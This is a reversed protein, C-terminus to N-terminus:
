RADNAGVARTYLDNLVTTGGKFEVITNTKCAASARKVFEPYEAFDERINKPQIRKIPSSLTKSYFYLTQRGSIRKSYIILAADDVVKYYGYPHLWRVKDGFARYRYGDKYYGGIEGFKHRSEKGQRMVIVDDLRQELYNYNDTTALMSINDSQLDDQSLFIGTVGKQMEQSDVTFANLLFAILCLSFFIKIPRAM